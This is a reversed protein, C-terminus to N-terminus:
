GRVVFDNMALSVPRPSLDKPSPVVSRLFESVTQLTQTNKMYSWLGETEFRSKAVIIRVGLSHQRICM